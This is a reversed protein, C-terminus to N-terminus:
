QCFKSHAESLLQEDVARTITRDVHSEMEAQASAADLADKGPTGPTTYQVVTRNARLIYACDFQSPDDGHSAIVDAVSQQQGAIDRVATIDKVVTYSLASAVAQERSQIDLTDYWSQVNSETTGDALTTEPDNQLRHYISTATHTM